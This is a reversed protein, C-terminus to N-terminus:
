PKPLPPSTRPRTQPRPAPRRPRAPARRRASVEGAFGFTVLPTTIEYVLITGNLVLWYLPEDPLATQIGERVLKLAELLASLTGPNGALPGCATPLRRKRPAPRRPPRM